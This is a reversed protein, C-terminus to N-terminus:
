EKTEAARLVRDAAAGHAGCYLLVEDNLHKEAADYAAAFGSRAYALAQTLTQVKDAQRRLVEAEVAAAEREFEDREWAFLTEYPRPIGRAEYAIQGLTKVEETM